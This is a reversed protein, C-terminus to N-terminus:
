KHPDFLRERFFVPVTRRFSAPPRNGVEVVRTTSAVLAPKDGGQNTASKMPIKLHYPEFSFAALFIGDGRRM